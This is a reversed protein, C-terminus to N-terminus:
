GRVRGSPVGGNLNREKGKGEGEGVKKVVVKGGGLFFGACSM